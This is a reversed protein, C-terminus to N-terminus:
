CRPHHSCGRKGAPCDLRDSLPVRQYLRATVVQGVTVHRAKLSTGPAVALTSGPPLTALRRTQRAAHIPLTVSLALLLTLCRM